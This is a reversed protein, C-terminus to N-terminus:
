EHLKGLAQKSHSLISASSLLVEIITAPFGLESRPHLSDAFLLLVVVQVAIEPASRFRGPPGILVSTNDAISELM